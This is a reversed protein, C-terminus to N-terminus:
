QRPVNSFTLSTISSQLVLSVNHGLSLDINTTLASNVTQFVNNSLNQENAIDIEAQTLHYFEGPVGGQKSSLNNHQKM